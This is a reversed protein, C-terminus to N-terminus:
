NTATAHCGTCSHKNALPPDSPPIYKQITPYVSKIKIKFNMQFNQLFVRSTPHISVAWSPNIQSRAQCGRPWTNHEADLSWVQYAAVMM